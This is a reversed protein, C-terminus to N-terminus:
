NVSELIARRTIVEPYDAGIAKLKALSDSEGIKGLAIAAQERTSSANDFDQLVKMLVPVAQKARLEGLSWAAAPRYFPRWGKYIIHAPPPNLGLQAEAPDNALMDVFLNASKADGLRGLTRTLMFCCWSRTESLEEARYKELLARIADACKIDACVISLVQAARAQAAHPRIHKEAHTSLSVAKYLATDLNNTSGLVDLCAEVVEDLRGSREVVRATLKEYSDLEYLLGRDKDAPISEIIKEVFPGAGTSEMRDLAELMRFHLISSHSGMLWKHDAVRFTYDEFSNLKPFANIIAKVADTGGIRGLAEAATAALYIPKQGAGFPQNGSKGKKTLNENMIDALLPVTQRDELYGLSRIAAMLIRLEGDPNNRLFDRLAKRGANDGVHGLAEIALHVEQHDSSDLSDVLALEVANWDTSGEPRGTLHELANAVAQAVVPHRDNRATMLPPVADRNGCASLSLAAACREEANKHHLAKVLIPVASRNRLIGLRRITSLAHDEDVAYLNIAAAERFREMQLNAIGGNAANNARFRHPAGQGALKLPRSKLAKSAVMSPAADAPAHCGVCSRQEGPRTYIWSLESIVARGEGDVAQLALPRDAPVEVYFSGDAALPVTGLEVGVTGIHEYISQTPELTFPRGEYVRIAKIRKLDAAKHQTNLVNQCYLFGTKDIRREAEPDIISPMVRPKKRKGLHVVSHLDNVPLEIATVVQRVEGNTPDFLLIRTKRISTCLMRGDPLPSLDYPLFGDGVPMGTPDASTVLGKQNIAIVRGDAMPAPSGVGFKRLWNMTEEAAADRDVEVGKRGPGIIVQGASGDLRTQHLHVEVKAREMFNDMRIFVLSGDAMVRPERDAVIHHTLPRIETGDAKCTFLSSAYKGHYEERSGLRTSSFVLRGDPLEVPDYDHFPGTTIPRLNSGDPNVRYIHFYADDKKAMSFFVTKGDYAVSPSGIKGGDADCLLTAKGDPRFPVLSWLQQGIAAPTMPDMEFYARTKKIFQAFTKQGSANFNLSNGVFVIGDEFISDAFETEPPYEKDKPPLKVKGPNPKVKGWPSVGHNGIVTVPKWNTGGNFDNDSWGSEAKSSSYWSEDSMLLFTQGDEFQVELKVLLGAPGPITNVGEVAISNQEIVLHEAVDTVLPHKWSHGQTASSGVQEGNVYLTWQNDCTIIVRASKPKQGAPFAFGKQFYWT